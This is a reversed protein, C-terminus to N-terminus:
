AYEHLLNEKNDGGNGMEIGRMIHHMNDTHHKAFDFNWIGNTSYGVVHPHAFIGIPTPSLLIEREFEDYTNCNIYGASMLTVLEGSHRHLVGIRDTETYIIESEAGPLIVPTDCDEVLCFGRFFDYDNTVDAHDTIVTVDIADKDKVYDVLDSIDDKEHLAFKDAEHIDTTHCHMDGVFYQLEDESSATKMTRAEINASYEKGAYTAVITASGVKVLSILIGNKFAHKGANDFNRIVAADGDVRWSVASDKDLGEGILYLPIVDSVYSSISTKSLTVM